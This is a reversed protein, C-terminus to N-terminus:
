RSHDAFDGPQDVLAKLGQALVVLLDVHKRLHVLGDGTRHLLCFRLEAVAWGDFKLFAHWFGATPRQGWLLELVTWRFM